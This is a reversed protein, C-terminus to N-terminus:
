ALAASAMPIQAGIAGGSWRFQARAGARSAATALLPRSHRPAIAKGPTCRTSALMVYRFPEAKFPQDRWGSRFPGDARRM